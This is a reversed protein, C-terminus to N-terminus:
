NIEPKDIDGSGSVEENYTKCVLDSLDIDGSGSVSCIVSDSYGSVEIDGSGSISCGLNKFKSTQVNLDGSGAIDLLCSDASMDTIDIEGSGSINASCKSLARVEHASISGSGLVSIEINEGSLRDATFDGSGSMTVSGLEPASVKVKCGKSLVVNVSDTFNIFLTGDEVKTEVYPLINDSATVNVKYDGETFEVDISGTIQMSTFGSVYRTQTEINGSEKVSKRNLYFVCSSLILCLGLLTILNMKM